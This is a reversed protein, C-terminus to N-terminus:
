RLGRLRVPSVLAFLEHRRAVPQRSVYGSDGSTSEVGRRPLAVLAGWERLVVSRAARERSPRRDACRLGAICPTRTRHALRAEVPLPPRVPGSGLEAGGPLRERHFVGRGCPQRWRDPTFSPVIPGDTPGLASLYAVLARGCRARVPARRLQENSSRLSCCPEGTEEAVSRRPSGACAHRDVRRADISREREM